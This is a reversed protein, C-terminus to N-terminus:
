REESEELSSVCAYIGDFIDPEAETSHVLPFCRDQCTPIDGGCDHHFELISTKIEELCLQDRCFFLSCKNERTDLIKADMVPNGHIMGGNDSEREGSKHGLEM